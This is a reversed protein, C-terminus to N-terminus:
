VARARKRPKDSKAQRAALKSVLRHVRKDNAAEKETTGRAIVGLAQDFSKAHHEYLKALELRVSSAISGTRLKPLSPETGDIPPRERPVAGDEARRAEFATKAVAVEEIEAEVELEWLAREYDALAAAKDGRAKAIDGRVRHGHGRAGRAVSLEAFQLARDLDGSRRAVAAAAALDTPDLGTRGGKAAHAWAELPEGYLGVLAAMSVVDLHNHRVVPDLASADQTRAFHHYILPIDAGAVDDVRAQGLVDDEVRSLKCSTLRHKHLRRVIHLLDLHPREPLPRLRNMTARTCLLPWDFAKGNFTVIVEAEEVRERLREIMAPEEAFRRLLLQEVVFTEAGPEFAGIGILFPVAGTGGMLGTTETDLFVARELDCSALRPDLALLALLAADARRAPHIPVSGIRHGLPTPARALYLPGHETALETFADEIYSPKPPEAPKPPAPAHGGRALIAAIRDRLEDLSPKSTAREGAPELPDAPEPPPAPEAVPRALPPLRNLKAGFSSPM